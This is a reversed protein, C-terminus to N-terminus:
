LELYKTMKEAIKRKSFVPKVGNHDANISQIIEIGIFTYLHTTYDLTHAINRL